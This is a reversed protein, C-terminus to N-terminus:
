FADALLYMKKAKGSVLQKSFDKLAYKSSLSGNETQTKSLWEWCAYTASKM